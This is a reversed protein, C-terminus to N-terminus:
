RQDARGTGTTRVASASAGAGADPGDARLPTLDNVAPGEIRTGDATFRSGHLPCDWTLEADNWSVVGGTHPCVASVACTRGQVTSVAVPKGARSAVVGQGEAPRRVPTPTLEAGVWGQAAAAGVKVNEAVGSALDAPVTLRTGIRTIWAPRQKRPTGLIEERLRLAAAPANTLGWKAYGTAFRLRGFGRPMAGVFPVDNHSEYDQASWRHTEVAGPFHALTWDVLEAFGARESKERGVPHGNGGVVLQATESPGDGSRVSRISRSPSDVSLFLGDPVEGPVEFSVCSSRMPTVKAFTLGRDAIPMGTALVIQGAHMDGLPTRVRARPLVSVGTVRVGTHLTGGAAVFAEALATAIADPDMAVQDDLAVAGVVPFSLDALEDSTARRAALGAETAADLEREVSRLGDVGQAYSYATRRTYPVGASDAFDLLWDQGARNADVYAQVLSASHHARITSLRTGQLLSVKGTNAGTALQAVEGAELVAVDVGARALMLATTLGTLGAGVVVVEHRGSAFPTGTPARHGVKWLPTM